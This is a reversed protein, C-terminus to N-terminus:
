KTPNRRADIQHSASRIPPLSNPLEDVIIDVVKKLLEQVEEPLYELSTNTLIVGPKRIVVFQMEQEKNLENLLEKGSMFLIRVKVEDKVKNEEIPLLMHTIVNKEL